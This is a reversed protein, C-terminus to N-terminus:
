KQARKVLSPSSLCNHHSYPVENYSPSDLLKRVSDMVFYVVVIFVQQSAVYLIITAFSVLSLYLYPVTTRLKVSCFAMFIYQPFSPMAGRM